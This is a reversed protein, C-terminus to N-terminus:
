ETSLMVNRDYIITTVEHIRNYLQEQVHENEQQTDEGFVLIQYVVNALNLYKRRHTSLM